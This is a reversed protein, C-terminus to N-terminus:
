GNADGANARAWFEVAAGISAQRGATGTVAKDHTHLHNIRM